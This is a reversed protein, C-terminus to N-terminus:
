FELMCVRLEGIGYRYNCRKRGREGKIERDGVGVIDKIMVGWVRRCTVGVFIGERKETKM